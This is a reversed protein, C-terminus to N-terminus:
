LLRKLKEYDIKSQHRSDRPITNLYKIEDCPIKIKEIYKNITEQSKGSKAEITLIIRNDKEILTAIEIESIGSLAKEYPFVFYIRDKYSFKNKCRGMLFLNNDSDLYGADGTRHWVYGDCYIKNQRQAEYNNYYEKLVHKGTVCIEGTEGVPLVLNNFELENAATIPLDTIKIIKVIADKIPRGVILGEDICSNKFTLMENASIFSIPEAETSGYVIEVYTDPFAKILKSALEAFVPAGGLFIKKLTKVIINNKICYEALIDYFVPSGVTSSVKNEIMNKIIKEPSIKSPRKPNFDPIISTIGTALNNLVFIPLTSYDVENESHNLHQKLVLHQNLLFEHTRNAGKPLGTSGTTFTILATNDGTAIECEQMEEYKSIFLTKAFLKVPIKRIESSTLRLIHAKNSGIFANCDAIKVAQELRGKEAWADVFVATAGIYFLALLIKYLEISMPVFVLVRYGKTIGANSLYISTSKISEIFDKYTIETDLEKLAVKDPNRSANEIVLEVINETM